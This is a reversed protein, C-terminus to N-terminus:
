VPCHPSLYVELFGKVDEWVVLYRSHWAREALALHQCHYHLWPILLIDLAESLTGEVERVVRAEMKPGYFARVGQSRNMSLVTDTGTKWVAGGHTLVRDKIRDYPIKDQLEKPVGVHNQVTSGKPLTAELKM